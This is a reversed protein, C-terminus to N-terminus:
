IINVRYTSGDMVVGGYLTPVGMFQQEETPGNNVIKKLAEFTLPPDYAAVMKAMSTRAADTERELFNMIQAIPARVRIGGHGTAFSACMTVDINDKRVQYLSDHLTSQWALQYSTPESVYKWEWDFKYFSDLLAFQLSEGPLCWRDATRKPDREHVQRYPLHSPGLVPLIYINHMHQKWDDATFRLELYGHEIRPEYKTDLCSLYADVILTRECQQKTMYYPQYLTLFVNLMDEFTRTGPFLQQWRVMFFMDKMHKAIIQRLHTNPVRYDNDLFEEDIRQLDKIGTHIYGIHDAVSILIESISLYEIQDIIKTTSGETSEPRNINEFHDAFLDSCSAILRYYPKGSYRPELSRDQRLLLYLCHEGLVLNEESKLDLLFVHEDGQLARPLHTQAALYLKSQSLQLDEIHQQSRVEFIETDGISTTYSPVASLAFLHTLTISLAGTEAEIYADRDWLWRRHLAQVDVVPYSFMTLTSSWTGGGTQRALHLACIAEHITYVPPSITTYSSPFTLVERWAEQSGCDPVWSPLCPSTDALRAGLGAKRLVQVQNRGVGLIWYAFFGIFFHQCSISYDPPFQQRQVEDQLLSVVGYLKDRPDSAHSNVTLRALSFIDRVSDSPFEKLALHEVWPAESWYNQQSLSMREMVARDTHLNINGVRFLVREARLLEQIVWVRTFYRRKLLDKLTFRATQYPHGLPFKFSGSDIKSLEDLPKLTPFNKNLPILDSGLYVVVRSCHEYIQRMKSVQIEREQPDQQNICLADVWITRIGRWPRMFQLMSCCNKTQLLVDWYPGIYVPGSPTSDDDEGGWTYSVTEYEPRNDDTFRELQLHLPEDPSSAAPLCALRLEHPGLSLGYTQSPGTRMMKAPLTRARKPHREEAEAAHGEDGGRERRKYPVCLPWWLNMEGFIEEPPLNLAGGVSDKNSLLAETTPCTHECARCYPLKNSDRLVVDPANCSSRHWRM